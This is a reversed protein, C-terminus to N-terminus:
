LSDFAALTATSIASLDGVTSPFIAFTVSAPSSAASAMEDAATILALAAVSAAKAAAKAAFAEAAM